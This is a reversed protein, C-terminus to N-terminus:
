SRNRILPQERQGLFHPASLVDAVPKQPTDREGLTLRTILCMHSSGQMQPPAPAPATNKEPHWSRQTKQWFAASLRPDM